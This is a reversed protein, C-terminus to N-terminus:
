MQIILYSIIRLNVTEVWHMPNKKYNNVWSIAGYIYIITFISLFLKWYMEGASFLYGVWSFFFLALAISIYEKKLFWPILLFIFIAPWFFFIPSKLLLPNAELFFFNELSFYSLFYKSTDRFLLSDKNFAIRNVMKPLEIAKSLSDISSYRIDVSDSVRALNAVEFSVIILYRLNIKINLFVFVHVFFISFLVFFSIPNILSFYWYLPSSLIFFCRFLFKIYLLHFSFFIRLFVM